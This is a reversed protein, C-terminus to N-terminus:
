SALRRSRSIKLAKGITCRKSSYWNRAWLGSDDVASILRTISNNDFRRNSSGAIAAEETVTAGDECGASTAEEVACDVAAPRLSFSDFDIRTLFSSRRWDNIGFPSKGDLGCGELACFRIKDAGMQQHAIDPVMEEQNWRKLPTRQHNRRRKM